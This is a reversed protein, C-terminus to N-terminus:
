EAATNRTDAVRADAEYADLLLRHFHHVGHESLGGGEPDTMYRGRDYAPTRMGRQVSEVIDIDEKQLVKDVYAIAEWQQASPKKATFYFDYTEVTTEPGTPLVNLVMLNGDGPYRLLCVNPWLWWVAHDTVTVGSVDYATNASLGAKAMHSSYIGHTTVTYSEMDVLSVFDRHAIPCHYCELFNDVVNKWNSQIEYTIRHAHTLGALDPAYSVIEAGLGESLEALPRAEPDLNVFVLHCFVEIRVSKLCFDAKDFDEILEARRAARLSGDLRYNWGHYPCAIAKVNGQGRLLEHARHRCVNYFARLEGGGDRIALVPMGQVEIAIYEGKAALAAEHCVFQWTRHFVARQEAELYSQEVYCRAPLSLSGQPRADHFGSRLDRLDEVSITMAAGTM